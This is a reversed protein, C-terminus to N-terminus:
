ATVMTAGARAFVKALQETSRLYGDLTRQRPDATIHTVGLAQLQEITALIEDHDDDLGDWMARISLVFEKEPRGERVTKLERILDDGPGTTTRLIGHWGDGVRIARRLAADAHGGVWVPIRRTPQPKMRMDAFCIGHVPYTANVPDETWLARMM